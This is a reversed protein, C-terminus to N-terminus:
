GDYFFAFEDAEEGVFVDKFDVGSKELEDGFCHFDFFFCRLQVSAVDGGWPFLADAFFAAFVFDEVM